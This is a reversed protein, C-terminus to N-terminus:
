INTTPRCKPDLPEDPQPKACDVSDEELEEITVEGVLLDEDEQLEAQSQLDSLLPRGSFFREVQPLAGLAANQKFASFSSRVMDATLNTAGNVVLTDRGGNNNVLNIGSNDPKPPLNFLVSATPDVVSFKIEEGPTLAGVKMIASRFVQDLYTSVNGTLNIEGVYATKYTGSDPNLVLTQANLSYLPITQSISNNFNIIPMTSVSTPQNPAIAAVLLTHVYEGVDDVTGNFTVTPDM